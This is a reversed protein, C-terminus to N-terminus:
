KAELFGSSEYHEYAYPYKQLVNEFHERKQLEEQFKPVRKKRPLKELGPIQFANEHMPCCCTKNLEKDVIVFSQAYAYDKLLAHRLLPMIKAIVQSQKEENSAPQIGFSKVIENKIFSLKERQTKQTNKYPYPENARKAYVEEIYESTGGYIFGEIQKPSTIPALVEKAKACLQSINNGDNKHFIVVKGNEKNKIVVLKCPYLPGVLAKKTSNKELITYHCEPVFILNAKENERLAQYKFPLPVKTPKAGQKLVLESIAPFVLTYSFASLLAIMLRYTSTTKM